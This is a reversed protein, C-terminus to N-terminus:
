LNDRFSSSNDFNKRGKKIALNAVQKDKGGQM